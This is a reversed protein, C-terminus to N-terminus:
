AEPTPSPYTKDESRDSVVEVFKRSLRRTVDDWFRDVDVSTLEIGNAKAIEDCIAIHNSEYKAAM